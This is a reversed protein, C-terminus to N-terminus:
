LAVRIGYTAIGYAALQLLLLSYLGAAVDDMMIGLGGAVKKDFFSVPWPKLIDFFRFLLFGAMLWYWGAPIMFLAIWLGVFEDWVIAAPDKAKMDLAVWGCIFIGAVLAVGVAGAYRLPDLEALLLYLPIAAITGFTGPAKPFLGSGFGFSVFYIPHTFAKKYHAKM